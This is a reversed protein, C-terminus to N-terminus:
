SVEREYYLDQKCGVLIVLIDEYCQADMDKLYLELSDFTKRDTISFCLIVVDAARYFIKTVSRFAEVGATDWIQLKLKCDQVQSYFSGFDVGVTANHEIDFQDHSLRTLM